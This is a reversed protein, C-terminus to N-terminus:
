EYKPNNVIYIRFITVSSILKTLGKVTLIIYEVFYTLPWKYIITM